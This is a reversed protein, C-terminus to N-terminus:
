TKVTMAALRHDGTDCATLEPKGSMIWHAREGFQRRELLVPATGRSKQRGRLVFADGRKVDHWPFAELFFRPSSRGRRWAFHVLTGPKPGLVDIYEIRVDL